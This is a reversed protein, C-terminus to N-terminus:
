EYIIEPYKKSDNFHFMMTEDGCNFLSGDKKMELEFSSRENSMWHASRRRLHGVRVENNVLSTFGFDGDRGDENFIYIYGDEMIQKWNAKDKFLNNVKSCNRLLSFPGCMENEDNSFVDVANLLEDTVYKDLRGYVIDLDTYGWFDYGKLEEEYLLGMAPHFDSMKITNPPICPEVRLKDRVRQKFDEIDTIIKWEFGYQKLKEINDKYKDMWNPLDGCYPVLFLKKLM